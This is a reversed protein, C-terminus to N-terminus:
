SLSADATLIGIRGFQVLALALALAEKLHFKLVEPSWFHYAMTADGMYKKKLKKWVKKVQQKFSKDKEFNNM